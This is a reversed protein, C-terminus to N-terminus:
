LDVRCGYKSLDIRQVKTLSGLESPISGSLQNNDLILADHFFPFFVCFQINLVSEFWTGGFMDVRCGYKCLQMWKVNTLFGLESPISGTLENVDLIFADHLLYFFAFNFTSSPNL